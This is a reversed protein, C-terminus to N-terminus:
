RGMRRDCGTSRAGTLVAVAALALITILLHRRGARTRPDGITALSALLYPTEAPRLPDAHALGALDLPTSSSPEVPM